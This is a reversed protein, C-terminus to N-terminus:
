ATLSYILPNPPQWEEYILKDHKSRNCRECALALNTPWNSGGRSLPIVHDIEYKENLLKSCWACCGHQAEYLLKIDDVTFTGVAAQRRARRRTGRQQVRDLNAADWARQRKRVAVNNAKYYTRCSELKKEPNAAYKARQRESKKERNVAYRARERECAQEHWAADRLRYRERLRKCHCAKCQTRLGDWHTKDKYFAELPKVEGCKSCRKEDM